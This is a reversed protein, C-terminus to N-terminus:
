LDRKIQQQRIQFNKRKYGQWETETAGSWTDSKCGKLVGAEVILM